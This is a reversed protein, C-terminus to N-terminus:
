RSHSPATSRDTRADRSRNIISHVEDAYRSMGVNLRALSHHLFANQLELREQWNGAGASRTLIRSSLALQEAGHLLWFGAIASGVKVM